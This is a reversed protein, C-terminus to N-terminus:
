FLKASLCARHLASAVLVSDVGLERLSLLDADSRVGGAASFRKGPFRKLLNELRRYDPGLNSGVQDLTMVIIREPWAEVNELWSSHGMFCANKFDLSLIAQDPLATLVQTQVESGIVTKYHGRYTLTDTLQRGDDIWFELDPYDNLVRNLLAQHSGSGTIADLDAIYFTNFPFLDRYARLVAEIDSQRTLRSALHVPQYQSRNGGTAHVVLGDKLDIVPIIQM